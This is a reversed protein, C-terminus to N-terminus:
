RETPEIDTYKFSLEHLKWTENRANFHRMVPLNKFLILHTM